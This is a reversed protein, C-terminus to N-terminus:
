VHARGIQYAAQAKAVDASTKYKKAEAEYDKPVPLGGFQTSLGTLAKPEPVTFVKPPQRLAALEPIDTPTNPEAM